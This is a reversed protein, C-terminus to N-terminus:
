VSQFKDRLRMACNRTSYKTTTDCFLQEITSEISEVSGPPYFVMDAVARRDDKEIATKLNKFLVVALRADKERWYGNLYKECSEATKTEQVVAGM